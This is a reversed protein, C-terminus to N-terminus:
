YHSETERKEFIRVVFFRHASPSRASHAIFTLLMQRFSRIRQMEGRRSTSTYHNHLIVANARARGSIGGFSVRIRKIDTSM